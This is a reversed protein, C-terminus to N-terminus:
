GGKDDDSVDIMALAREHTTQKKVSASDRLPVDILLYV